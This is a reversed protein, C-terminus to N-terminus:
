TAENRPKSGMKKPCCERGQGNNLTEYDELWVWSSYEMKPIILNPKYSKNMIKCTLRVM